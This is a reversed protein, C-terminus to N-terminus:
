ENIALSIIILRSSKGLFKSKKTFCRMKTIGEIISMAKAEERSSTANTTNILSTM